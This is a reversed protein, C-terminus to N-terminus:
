LENYFRLHPKLVTTVMLVVGVSLTYLLGFWTASMSGFQLDIMVAIILLEYGTWVFAYVIAAGLFLWFPGFLGCLLLLGFMSLRAVM